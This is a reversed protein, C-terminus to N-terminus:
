MVNLRSPSRTMWHDSGRRISRGSEVSPPAGGSDAKSSSAM